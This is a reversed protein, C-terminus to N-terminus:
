RGVERLLQEKRHPPLTTQELWEAGADPNTRLYRRATEEMLADSRDSRPLSRVWRAAEFPPLGQIVIQLAEDRMHGSPLASLLPEVASPNLAGRQRIFELIAEERTMGRPQTALWAAFAPSNIEPYAAAAATGGRTRSSGGRTGPANGGRRSIPMGFGTDIGAFAADRPEGAPLKGAWALAAKSDIAVWTQGIASLLLWRDRGEPLMEAVSLAREPRVQALEFGVSSTLRSKLDDNPLDRVWAVAADPDRRAWAAAALVLVDDRRIGAPLARIRDIAERPNAAVLEDIVARSIQRAASTSPLETIWRLAFERDHRALARGASDVLTMQELQGGLAVALRAAFAPDAAPVQAMAEGALRARVSPDGVSLLTHVVRDIDKERAARVADGVIEAETKLLAPTGDSRMMKPMM